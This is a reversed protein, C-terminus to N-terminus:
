KKEMSARWADLAETVADQADRMRPVWEDLIIKEAQAHDAANELINEIEQMIRDQEDMAAQVECYRQLEIPQEQVEKKETKKEQSM